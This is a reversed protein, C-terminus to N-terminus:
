ASIEGSVVVSLWFRLHRFAICARVKWGLVRIRSAWGLMFQTIPGLGLLFTSSYARLGVKVGFM